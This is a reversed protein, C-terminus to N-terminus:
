MFLNSRSVQASLKRVSGDHCNVQAVVLGDVVVDLAVTANGYFGVITADPWRQQVQHSADIMQQPTM